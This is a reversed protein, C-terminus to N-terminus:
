KKKPPTNEYKDRPSFYACDSGYGIVNATIVVHNLSCKGNYQHICDASCNINTM